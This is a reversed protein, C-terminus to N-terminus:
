TWWRNTLSDRLTNTACHIEGESVHTSTLDNVYTVQYGIKRFAKTIADAFLDKGGLVPGFPKPAVYHGANLVLGNVTGPVEAVGDRMANLEARKAEKAPGEPMSRVTTELMGWDLSRATYLAPVRVLDAETLGAKSRLVDLNARIRDAAQENTEVFQSDALFENTTRQDIREDYPWQLPPLNGHLKDGGRGAKQVQDLLKLGATPDAVVAKWGLRSGPVPVFQIFEDVHGITLWSTDLSIPDQLGQSKLLTLMEPAPGTKGPALGDGGIVVRGNPYSSTAPITELNGMSDYSSNETSIPVHEVHIGGVDAGALKTFMVRSAVRRDDNVSGILLKMGQPRGGPGPISTYAPEFIDQAWQDGSLDLQRLSAGAKEIVAAADARWQKGEADDDSTTGTIVQELKQTNLQTLVPAERMTVTSSGRGTVTLTVDITGDWQATDRIIDRGEIGLEAGRRLEDATLRTDPTVLEWTARKIFLHVRDPQSVRLSGVASKPVTPQPITHIRALDLADKSGNVVADAADNCAALERDALNQKKRHTRVLEQYLREAEEKDPLKELEERRKYFADDNAAERDVADAAIEKARDHCRGTDDDLNALFLGRSMDTRLGAYTTGATAALPAGLALAGSTTLFLLTRALM